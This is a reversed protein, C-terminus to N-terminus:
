GLLVWSDTKDSAVKAYSEVSLLHSAREDEGEYAVKFNYAFTEDNDQGKNSNAEEIKGVLWGGLRPPWKYLISKGVLQSGVPSNIAGALWEPARLISLGAPMRNAISRFARQVAKDAAPAHQTPELQASEDVEVPADPGGLLVASPASVDELLPVIPVAIAFNRQPAAAPPNELRWSTPCIAKLFLSCTSPPARDIHPPPSTGAPYPATTM